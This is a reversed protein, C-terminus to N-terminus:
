NAGAAERLPQLAKLTVRGVARVSRALASQDEIQVSHGWAAPVQEDLTKPSGSHVGGDIHALQDLVEHVTYMREKVLVIGFRLFAKLPLQQVLGVEATTAPDLGDQFAWFVIRNGPQVPQPAGRDNVEFRLPLRLERNVQDVLRNGDILLQRLLAAAKLADYESADPQIRQELDSLVHEFLVPLKVSGVSRVLVPVPTDSTAGLRGVHAGPVHM